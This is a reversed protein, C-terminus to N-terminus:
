SVRAGNARLFRSRRDLADRVGPKSMVDSDLAIFVSRDNLAILEWDPLAAKGGHENKGRWGYM